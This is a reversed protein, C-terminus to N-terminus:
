SSDVYTPNANTCVSVVSSSLSVSGHASEPLSFGMPPRSSALFRRWLYELLYPHTTYGFNIAMTPQMQHLCPQHQHLILTYRPIGPKSLQNLAFPLLSSKATNINSKSQSQIGSHLSFYVFCHHSPFYKYSTAYQDPSSISSFVRSHRLLSVKRPCLRSHSVHFIRLTPTPTAAIKKPDQPIHSPIQRVL